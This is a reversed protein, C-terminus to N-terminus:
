RRGVLKWGTPCVPNVGTVKKLKKGKKCTITTQTPKQSTLRVSITPESFHFGYAAMRLWGDQESVATTAVQEIGDNSTVSISAMVPADSLRYLCRAVDSRLVLNYSGELVAGGPVRHLAAVRYRLAGDEFAPPMADYITANTTVLGVLRNPDWLCPEGTRNPLSTVSWTPIVVTATDSLFSQFLRLMDASGQGSSSGGLVGSTCPVNGPCTHNSRWYALIEPTAEALPMEHFVLPVEAPRATVTLRNLNGSLPEVQISPDVLRGGLWGTMTNSMRVSLRFAVDEPFPTRYACRGADTWLCQGRGPGSNPQQGVPVDRYPIVHASFEGTRFPQGHTAGIQGGLYVAYGRSPDPDDPDRFLSMTSGTPLGRAEDPAFTSGPAMGALGLSRAPGLTPVLELEEICEEWALATQCPPAVRPVWWGYTKALEVCQPDGLSSCVPQSGPSAVRIQSAWRGADDIAFGIRDTVQDPGRYLPPWSLDPDSARGSEGALM